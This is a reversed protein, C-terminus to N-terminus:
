WVAGPTEADWQGRAARHVGGISPRRSMADNRKEDMAATISATARFAPTANPIANGLATGCGEAPGIWRGEREAHSAGDPM